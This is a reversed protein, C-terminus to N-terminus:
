AADFSNCCGAFVLFVRSGELTWHGGCPRAVDDAVLEESLETTERPSVRETRIQDLLRVRTDESIWLAVAAPVEGPQTQRAHPIILENAEKSYKLCALWLHPRAQLGSFVVHGPQCTAKLPLPRKSDIDHQPM